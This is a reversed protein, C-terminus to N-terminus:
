RFYRYVQGLYLNTVTFIRCVTIQVFQFPEFNLLQSKIKIILSLIHQRSKKNVRNIHNGSYMM